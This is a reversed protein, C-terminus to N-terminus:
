EKKKLIDCINEIANSYVERRYEKIKGVVDDVKEKVMLRNGNTLTILTDPRSEVTEILEANIVINEGNMRTVDIM